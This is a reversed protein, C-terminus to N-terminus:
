SRQGWAAKAIEIENGDEKGLHAKLKDMENEHFPTRHRELSETVEGDELLMKEKEIFLIKTEPYYEIVHVREKKEISM